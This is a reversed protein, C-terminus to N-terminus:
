FADLPALVLQPFCAIILNLACLTLLQSIQQNLLKNANVRVWLSTMRRMLQCAM